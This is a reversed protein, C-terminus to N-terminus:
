RLPPRPFSSIYPRMFVLWALAFSILWVVFFAAGWWRWDLIYFIGGKSAALLLGGELILAVVIYFACTIFAMKIILFM